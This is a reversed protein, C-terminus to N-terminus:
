EEEECSLYMEECDQQAKILTEIADETARFLRLYMAKYDIARDEERKM